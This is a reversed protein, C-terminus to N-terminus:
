EPRVTESENLEWRGHVTMTVAIWPRVIQTDRMTTTVSGTTTISAGFLGSERARTSADSSLNIIRGLTAGSATAIAVAQRRASAAADRLAAEQADSGDQAIFTVNGIESIGRSAISDIAAGVMDLDHVHVELVEHARYTTDSVPDCTRGNNGIQTRPRCSNVALIEIRGKWWASRSGTLISDRAIGVSELARRVIDTRAALRQMAEGPTLGVEDLRATFVALDPRVHVTATASTSVASAPRAVTNEQAWAPVPALGMLLAGVVLATSSISVRM